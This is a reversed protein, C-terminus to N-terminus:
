RRAPAPSTRRPRQDTRIATPQGAGAMAQRRCHRRPHPHRAARLPPGPRGPPLQRAKGHGDTPWEIRSAQGAIGYALQVTRAPILWYDGTVFKSESLPSFTVTIDGDIDFSPSADGDAELLRADDCDWRRIIPCLGLDAVGEPALTTKWAIPLIIRGTGPDQTPQDTITALYGHKGRLELDTSTVEILNNKAFSLDDDRGNRDVILRVGAPLTSIDLLRAVVSGNDRSWLVTPGTPVDSGDNVQDSGDHVQVRYLQNDLRRYGSEAEAPVGTSTPQARGTNNKPKATMWPLTSSLDALAADPTKSEELPLTRVQWTTRLRVATDPGGLASELLSPDEDPSVTRHWVDLYALSREPPEDNVPLPDSTDDDRRTRPTMPQGTLTM